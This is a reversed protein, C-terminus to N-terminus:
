SLRRTPQLKTAATCPVAKLGYRNPLKGHLFDEFNGVLRGILSKEEFPAHWNNHWHHAFAGHFVEVPMRPLVIYSSPKDFFDKWARVKHIQTLNNKKGTPTDITLWLPDFPISPLQEVQAAIEPPVRQLVRLPHFLGNFLRADFTVNGTTQNHKMAAKLASQIVAGAFPSHQRAGFVATNMGNKVFSWEYLFDYQSLPELNRLLLVDGDTYIGGFKYLVLFRVADSYAVRSGAAASERVAAHLATTNRTANGAAAFMSHPLWDLWGDM